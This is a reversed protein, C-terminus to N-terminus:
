TLYEYSLKKRNHTSNIQFDKYSENQAEAKQALEKAM